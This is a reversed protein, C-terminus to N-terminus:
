SLRSLAYRPMCRLFLFQNVLSVVTELQYVGFHCEVGDMVEGRQSDLYRVILVFNLGICSIPWAALRPRTM